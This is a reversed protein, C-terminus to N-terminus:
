VCTYSFIFKRILCHFYNIKQDNQQRTLNNRKKVQRDIEARNELAVCLKRVIHDHACNTKHVEFVGQKGAPEFIKCGTACQKGRSLSATCRFFETKGIKSSHYRCWAWAPEDGITESLLELKAAKFSDHSSSLLYNKNKRKNYTNFM